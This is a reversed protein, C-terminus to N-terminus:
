QLMLDRAWDNVMVTRLGVGAKLDSFGDNIQDLSIKRTILQDCPLRGDRWLGLLYPCAEYTDASGSQCGVLSKAEDFLRFASMHLQADFGTAGVVIVKGGRRATEYALEITEPRGAAEICYDAGRGDTLKALETPVDDADPDFVHTAGVSLAVDRRHALPDIGVVNQAGRALAGMVASAGVGGLGFVVATSGAEVQATYISAGAGTIVACSLVAAVDLPIDKNIPIASRGLVTTHSSFGGVGIVPEVHAGDALRGYPMTSWEPGERDCLYPEGRICYWCSRCGPSNVLVVHDGAEVHEVEGGVEEVVGAAEHGLVVPVPHPRIGSQMLLDSRCLGCAAVRVTVQNPAIDEPSVEEVTLSKGAEHLIAARM